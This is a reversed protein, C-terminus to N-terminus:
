KNESKTEASEVDKVDTVEAEKAENSVEDKVEVEVKEIKPQEKGCKSCFEDKEELEAGCGVCKKIKKLALIETEAKEIEVELRAIEECKPTVEDKSVEEGKKHAAYVLKGIETYDEQIQLKTESIKNKLKLEGSIQSTKEKTIQYTESAKKSLKNFFEM